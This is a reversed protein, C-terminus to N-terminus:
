VREYVMRSGHKARFRILAARMQAPRRLDKNREMDQLRRRMEAKILARSLVGLVVLEADVKVAPTGTVKDIGGKKIITAVLSELTTGASKLAEVIMDKAQPLDLSLHVLASDELYEKVEMKTTDMNSIDSLPVGTADAVVPSAFKMMDKVVKEKDRINRIHLGTKEELRALAWREVDQRVSERDKVTRLAMGTKEGIANCISADSFPDTADLNMGALNMILSCCLEYFADRCARFWAPNALALGTATANAALWAFGRMAAIRVGWGAVAEFLLVLAPAFFIPM